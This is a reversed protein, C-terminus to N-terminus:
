HDYSVVRTITWNGNKKQWVHLFKFVGCDQKGNEEHCFRHSGTQIAGYDKIPFVEMTGPVLERTPWNPRSFNERLQKITQGYDALGGRDHYFELSKDFLLSVLKIDRANFADFMKKDMAAIEDYLPTRTQASATTSLLLLAFAIAVTRM